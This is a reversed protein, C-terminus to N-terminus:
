RPITNNLQQHDRQGIQAGPGLQAPTRRELGHDQQSMKNVMNQIHSLGEIRARLRGNEERLRDVTDTQSDYMNQISDVKENLEDVENMAGSLNNQTTQQKENMQQCEQEQETIKKKLGHIHALHREIQERGQANAIIKQKYGESFRDFEELEVAMRAEELEAATRAEEM